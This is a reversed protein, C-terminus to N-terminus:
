AAAVQVLRPELDMAWRALGMADPLTGNAFRAQDLGRLVEALESVPWDPRRQAVHALVAETDLSPFAGPLRADLAARLRSTAAAAVARSEGADAWRELPPRAPGGPDAVRPQTGPAGRRRWWWHLPALALLALILLLVLPVPTTAPRPVFDARPQPHLSTDTAPRPLVSAVHLTFAEPRLSDVGGDPSLLLPGPMELTHFGARWVALPYAVDASGGRVTVRAPGLLEVPDAVEWDAARLTRGTPLEITRSVWITDGVTPAAGQTAQDSM